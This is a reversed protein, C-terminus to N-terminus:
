NKMVATVTSSIVYLIAHGIRAKVAHPVSAAHNMPMFVPLAIFYSCVDTDEDFVMMASSGLMTDIKALEDFNYLVDVEDATMVSSSSGGPIVGKLKKGNRIGGGIGYIIDKMNVDM